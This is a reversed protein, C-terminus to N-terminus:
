PAEAFAWPFPFFTLRPFDMDALSQWQKESMAMGFLLSNSYSMEVPISGDTKQNGMM